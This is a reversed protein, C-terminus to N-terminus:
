IEFDYLGGEPPSVADIVNFRLSERKGREIGLFWRSSLSLFWRSLQPVMQVSSFAMLLSRLVM